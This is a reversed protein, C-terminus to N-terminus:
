PSPPLNSLSSSVWLSAFLREPDPCAGLAHGHLAPYPKPTPCGQAHAWTSWEDASPEPLLWPIERTKKKVQWTFFQYMTRELFDCCKRM